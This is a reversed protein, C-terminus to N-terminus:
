LLDHNFVNVDNSSEQLELRAFMEIGEVETIIGYEICQNINWEELNYDFKNDIIILDSM